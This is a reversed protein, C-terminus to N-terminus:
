EQKRKRSTKRQRARRQANKKGDRQAERYRGKKRKAYVYGVGPAAVLGVVAVVQFTAIPSFSYVPSLITLQYLRSEGVNGAEDTVLCFFAIQEGGNFQGLAIRWIIRGDEVGIPTMNEQTYVADFLRWQMVCSNTHSQEPFEYTEIDIVVDDGARVDGEPYIAHLEAIPAFTDTRVIFYYSGAVFSRGTTDNAVIDFNVETTDDFTGISNNFIGGIQPHSLLPFTGYSTNGGVKMSYNVYVFDIGDDDLATVSFYVIDEPRPNTPNIRVSSVIPLGYRWARELSLVGQAQVATYHIRWDDTIVAWIQNGNSVFGEVGPDWLHGLTLELTDIVMRIPYISDSAEYLDELALIMQFQIESYKYYKVDEDDLPDYPAGDVTEAFWGGEEGDWNNAILTEFIETAQNLYTTDGTTEFGKVLARMAMANLDTVISHAVRNGEAVVIPGGSRNTALMYGKFEMEFYYRMQSIMFSMSRNAMDVMTMNGLSLGADYLVSAGLVLHDLRKGDNPYIESFSAPVNLSGNRMTYFYFGEYVPDYLMDTLCMLASEKEATFDLSTNTSEALDLAWYAYAQVGPRKTQAIEIDAYENVYYGPYTPDKFISVMSNAARSMAISFTANNSMEYANSLAAIAWYYNALSTLEQHTDWDASGAHFIRGRSINMLKSVLIDATAEAYNRYSSINYEPDQSIIPIKANENIDIKYDGTVTINAGLSLANLMVIAFTITFIIKQKM